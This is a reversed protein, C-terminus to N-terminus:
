PAKPASQAPKGGAYLTLDLRRWGATDIGDIRTLPRPAIGLARARAAFATDDRADVLALGCEPQEHLFEAAAEPGTLRTDRGVLYVLSPEAFSAAALRSDPCPRQARVAAAIRPSLWIAQLAPLVQLYTSLSIVLAALGACALAPFPAARRAQRSAHVVLLAAVLAPFVTLWVLRHQLWVLLAPGAFALVLGVAVWLVRYWRALFRGVRGLRWGDPACMAGAALIAIAPTVPLVYPPWKTPMAELLLWVPLIWALLFRTEPTRRTSWAWPLARAAFLSGPWFTLLFLLLYTGPPWAREAQGPPLPGPMTEGPAGPDAGLGGIALPLLIPVLLAVGLLPRLELMWRTQREAAALGLLTGFTVALILPGQLLLGVGNAAWFVAPAIWASDPPAPLDRRRWVALLAAQATLVVALLPAHATAIRAEAGLLVSLALLLGALFGATAGFLLTAIRCTLLVAALAALAGPLRNAWIDRQQPTSFLSVAAAQLWTVGAPRLGAASDQFRIDALDGSELMQLTAQAIRAEARDLPPLRTIGPWLLLMALVSLLLMRRHAIFGARAASWVPAWGQLWAPRSWTAPLRLAIPPPADDQPGNEVM